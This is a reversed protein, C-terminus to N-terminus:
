SWAAAGALGIGRHDAVGLHERGLQGGDADAQAAQHVVLQVHLAGVVVQVGADIAARRGVGHQGDGLDRVASLSRSPWM